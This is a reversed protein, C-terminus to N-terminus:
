VCDCLFNWLKLFTYLLIWLLTGAVKDSQKEAFKAGKSIRVCRFFLSGWIFLYWLFYFNTCFVNDRAKCTGRVRTLSNSKVKMKQLKPKDICPQYSLKRPKISYIPNPIYLTDWFFPPNAFLVNKREQDNPKSGLSNTESNNSFQSRYTQALYLVM